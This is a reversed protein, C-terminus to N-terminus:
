VPGRTVARMLVDKFTHAFAAVVLIITWKTDPNLAMITLLEAVLTGAAVGVTKSRILGKSVVNKIPESQSEIVQEVVKGFILKGLIPILPAM